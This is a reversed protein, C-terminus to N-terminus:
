EADQESLFKEVAPFYIEPHVYYSMAHDADEVILLSKPAKCAEYNAMTMEVPVFSDEKGHIFLIPRQNVEMARLTSYNEGKEAIRKMCARDVDPRLLAYPIHM